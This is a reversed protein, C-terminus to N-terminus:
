LKSFVDFHRKVHVDVDSILAVHASAGEEGGGFFNGGLM